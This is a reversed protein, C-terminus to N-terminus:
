AKVVPVTAGLRYRHNGSNGAPGEGWVKGFAPITQLKAVAAALHIRGGETAPWDRRM